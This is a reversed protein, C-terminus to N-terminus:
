DGKGVEHNDTRFYKQFMTRRLYDSSCLVFIRADPNEAILSYAVTAIIVSKGHGTSLKFLINNGDLSGNLLCATAINQWGSTYFRAQNRDANRNMYKIGNKIYNIGDVLEEKSDDINLEERFYETDEFVYKIALENNLDLEPEDLSIALAKLSEVCEVNATIAAIM